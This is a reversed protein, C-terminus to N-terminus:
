NDKNIYWIILQDRPEGIQGAIMEKKNPQQNYDDGPGGLHKDKLRWNAIWYFVSEKETAVKNSPSNSLSKMTGKIM